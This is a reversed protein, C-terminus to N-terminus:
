GLTPVQSGMGIFFGHGLGDIHGEGSKCVGHVSHDSHDLGVKFAYLLV